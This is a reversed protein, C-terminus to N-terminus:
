KGDGDEKAVDDSSSASDEATNESLSATLRDRLAKIETAPLKTRLIPEVRFIVDSRNPLRRLVGLEELRSIARQIGGDVKKEDTTDAYFPRLMDAIERANLYLHVEGDPAQDHQFLRERLLLMLVSQHYGLPTRRLLRPMPAEDSNEDSTEDPQCLYAYGAEEDIVLAIGMAAYHARVHAEEIRLLNWLETEEQYLPGAVLHAIVHRITIRANM